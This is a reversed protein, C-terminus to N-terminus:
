SSKKTNLSQQNAIIAITEGREIAHWSSDAVMEGSGSRGRGRQSDPELLPYQLVWTCQKYYSKQSDLVALLLVHL